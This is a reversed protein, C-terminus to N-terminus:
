TSTAVNYACLWCNLCRYKGTQVARALHWGRSCALRQGLRSILTM